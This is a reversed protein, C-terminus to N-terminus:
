DWIQAVCGFGGQSPRPGVGELGGVLLQLRFRNQRRTRLTRGCSRVALTGPRSLLADYVWLHALMLVMLRKPM